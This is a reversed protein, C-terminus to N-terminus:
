KGLQGACSAPDFPAAVLAADDLRWPSVCRAFAVLATPDGPALEWIWITGAGGATALHKGDASWALQSLQAPLEPTQALLTGTAPDWLRVRHQSASALIAGDPRFRIVAEFDPTTWTRIPAFTARDFLQLEHSSSTAALWRPSAAVRKPTDAIADHVSAGTGALAFVRTGTAVVLHDDVVALDQLDDQLKMTTIATLETTKWLVLDNHETLTAITHEGDFLAVDWGSDALTAHALEDGTAVDWKRLTKDGVSYALKGDHTFIVRRVRATHGTWTARRAGTAADWLTIAGDESATAIAGDPALTLSRLGHPNAPQPPGGLDIIPKEHGSVDGLVRASGTALDLGRATGDNSASWLTGDAAFQLDRIRAVHAAVHRLMGDRAFRFIRTPGGSYVAVRGGRTSIAVSAGEAPVAHLREGTDPDWVFVEGAEDTTVLSMGDFVAYDTGTKHGALHARPAGTALDWLTVTDGAGFAALWATPGTGGVVFGYLESPHALRREVRQESVKWIRAVGKDDGTVLHDDDIWEVAALASATAGTATAEVPSAQGRGDAGGSPPAARDILKALTAGTTGDHVLTVGDAGATAFRKGDPAVALGQAAAAHHEVELPAAGTRSALFVRGTPAIAAFHVDDGLWRVTTAREANTGGTAPWSVVPAGTAAVRVELKGNVAVGALWHEDPSLEFVAVQDAAWLERGAALDWGRAHGDSTVTYVRTGDSTLQATTITAGQAPVFAVLGAYADRAVIALIAFAPTPVPRAAVEGALLALARDASDASLAQRALEELSDAFRREALARAELAAARESRAIEGQRTAEDRESAIRSFSAAGLVILAVAAIAATAVIARNRAVWRRVLQWSTYHHAAVLKGAQYSRLDQALGAATAYREGKARAMAKGVIAVLEPPADPALEALPRPPETRVRQMLDEFSTCEAYPRAGALAHYLIAGIAYVDAAEDLAEGHAQEPPMYAPTGLVSGAVTESTDPPLTSAFPMDLEEGTALNKALGWDIVVTEGYAGVLVNAPKLDRHIVSESHAYALADAVDIVHPVLAVRAAIGKAERILEDLTRGNVLKM